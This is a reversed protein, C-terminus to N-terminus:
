FGLPMLNVPMQSNDWPWLIGNNIHIWEGSNGIRQYNPLFAGLFKVNRLRCRALSFQGATGTCSLIGDSMLIGTWYDNMVAASNTLNTGYMGTGGDGWTSRTLLKYTRTTGDAGKMSFKSYYCSGSTGSSAVENVIPMITIPNTDQAQTYLRAPIEIHLGASGSASSNPSKAMILFHDKDGIMTVYGTVVASGAICFSQVETTGDTFASGNWTGGPSMVTGWTRSSNARWLLQVQSNAQGTNDAPPTMQWVMGQGTLLTLGSATTADIIRYNISTRATFSPLKTTVDPTGGNLVNVTIVSTSTYGTILYISDESSGSASKWTVLYKGVMGSTFPTSSAATFTSAGASTSGDTGSALLVTGGSHPDVYNAVFNCPTTSALGGPTTVGAGGNICYCWFEYALKLLVGLDGSTTTYQLARVFKRAM